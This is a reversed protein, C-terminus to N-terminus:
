FWRDPQVPFRKSTSPRQLDIWNVQGTDVAQTPARLAHELATPWPLGYLGLARACDNGSGMPVLGLTLQNELLAPLWRNLTGDGGVAIVRSGTPRRRLLALSEGL